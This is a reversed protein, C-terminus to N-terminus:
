GLGDDSGGPGPAAGAEKEPESIEGSADRDSSRARKKKRKKYNLAADPEPCSRRERLAPLPDDFLDKLAADFEDRDLLLVHKNDETVHKRTIPRRIAFGRVDGPDNELAFSAYYAASDWELDTKVHPEVTSWLRGLGVLGEDRVRQEFALLVAQQRRRRDREGTGHRSRVFKVATEGDMHVEGAPLDLPECPQDPGNIWFCDQIPCKVDVDVGGVSDVLEEFAGLDVAAHHDIRIGLEDELVRRLLPIGKGRGHELNGIRVVANIRAPRLDPIEIWLDRPVSIAAVKGDRHRFAVIMITDTRGTVKHRTRDM